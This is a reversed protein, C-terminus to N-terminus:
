PDGPVSTALRRLHHSHLFLRQEMSRMRERLVAVMTLPAVVQLVGLLALLVLTLTAPFSVLSAGIAIHEPSVAYPMESLGAVGLFFRWLVPIASAAIVLKVSRFDAQGLLIFGNLMALAPVLISPGLAYSLTTLAAVSSLVTGM